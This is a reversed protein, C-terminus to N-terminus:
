EGTYVELDMVLQGKNRQRTHWAKLKSKPNRMPHKNGLFNHTGDNMRKDANEKAHKSQFDSDLFNHTGDELRKYTPNSEGLFHHTGSEVRKRSPNNKGVFHHTGNAVRQCSMEKATEPDFGDGGRTDNYGNEYTGLQAIKWQEVACLAEHSINPYPIIEVEFADAGYRIIADGIRFEKSHGYLLHESIRRDLNVSKGVYQKGNISCTLIYIGIM